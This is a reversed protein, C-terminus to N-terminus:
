GLLVSATAQLLQRFLRLIETVSTSNWAPNSDQCRWTVPWFSSRSFWLSSIDDRNRLWPYRLMRIHPHFGIYRENAVLTDCSLNQCKQKNTYFSVNASVSKVPITDYRLKCVEGSSLLQTMTSEYFIIASWVKLLKEQFIVFKSKIVTTWVLSKRKHIYMSPLLPLITGTSLMFTYLPLLPTAESM